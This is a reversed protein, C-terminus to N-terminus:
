LRRLVERAFRHTARPTMPGIRRVVGRGKDAVTVYSVDDVKDLPISRDDRRLIGKGVLIRRETLVATDRKRWV